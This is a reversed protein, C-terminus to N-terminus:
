IRIFEECFLCEYEKPGKPGFWKDPAYIIKNPNENMYAGWWSFSSNAMINNECKSLIYLDVYDPFGEIFEIRDDKFNQKCWKIDDSLVYIRDIQVQKDLLSLAKLYYSVPMQIYVKPFRLYDGRRVHISVSNKFQGKIQSLVTKEKFLDLILNKHKHFYLYSFYGDIVMNPHYPIPEYHDKEKYTFEPKWNKPLEKLKKFISTRYTRAPNGQYVVKNDFNFACEDGYDLALSHATAVQFMQNCLGGYFTCSIM